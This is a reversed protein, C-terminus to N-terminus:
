DLINDLQKRCNSIDAFAYIMRSGYWSFSQGDVLIIRKSPLAYQLEDIDKQKFPYPESSLLIVDPDIEQMKELSIEPYRTQDAFCNVLGGDAMMKSIFTDGGITMYPKKWILYISKLDRRPTTDINRAQKIRELIDIGMDTKFCIASISQIMELASPIDIVNSTHVQAFERMETIHEKINEEKAAFILDPKLERISDIRPNKTGGIKPYNKVQDSPHECFKTIGIIRSSLGLDFLLETISPVLSIIRQPASDFQLQQGIQDKFIM